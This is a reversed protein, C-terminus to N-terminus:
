LHVKARMKVEGSLSIPWFPVGPCDSAVEPGERLDASKKKLNRRNGLSHTGTSCPCLFTKCAGAWLPEIETKKYQCVIVVHVAIAPLVVVNWLIVYCKSKFFFFNM